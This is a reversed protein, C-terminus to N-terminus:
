RRRSIPSHLAWPGPRIPWPRAAARGARLLASRGVAPNERAAAVMVAAARGDGMVVHHGGDLAEIVLM